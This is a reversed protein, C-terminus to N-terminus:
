PVIYSCHIHMYMTLQMELSCLNYQVFFARCSRVRVKYSVLYFQMCTDQQKTKTHTKVKYNRSATDCVHIYTCTYVHICTYECLSEDPPPTGRLERDGGGSEARRLACRGRCTGAAPAPGM